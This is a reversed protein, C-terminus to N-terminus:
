WWRIWCWASSRGTVTPKGSTLPRSRIKFTWILL